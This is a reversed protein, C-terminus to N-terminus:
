YVSTHPNHREILTVSVLLENSYPPDPGSPAKFVFMLLKVNIRYHVSLWHPASSALLQMDVSCLRADLHLSSLLSLKKVGLTIWCPVLSVGKFMFKFFLSLDEYVIDSKGSMETTGLTIYNSCSM